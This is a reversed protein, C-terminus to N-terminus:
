GLHVGAREAAEVQHRALARDSSYPGDYRIGEGCTCFYRSDFEWQHRALVDVLTMTESELLAM